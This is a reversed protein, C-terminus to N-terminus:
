PPAEEAKPRSGPWDSRADRRDRCHSPYTGPRRPRIATRPMMAFSAEGPFRCSGWAAMPGAGGVHRSLWGLLAGSWFRGRRGRPGYSAPPRASSAPRRRPRPGTKGQPGHSWSSLATKPRPPPLRAPAVYIRETAFRSGRTPRPRGGFATRQELIEPLGAPATPAFHAPRRPVAARWAPPFATGHAGILGEVGGPRFRRDRHHRRSPM